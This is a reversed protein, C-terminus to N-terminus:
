GYHQSFGMQDISDEKELLKVIWIHYYIGYLASFQLKPESPNGLLCLCLPNGENYSHPVTIFLFQLLMIGSYCVLSSFGSAILITLNLLSIINKATM